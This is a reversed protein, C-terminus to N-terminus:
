HSGFRGVPGTILKLVRRQLRLSIQCYDPSLVLFIYKIGEAMFYPYIDSQIIKKFFPFAKWVYGIICFCIISVRVTFFFEEARKFIFFLLEKM